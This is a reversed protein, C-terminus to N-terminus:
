CVGTNNTVRKWIDCASHYYDQALDCTPAYEIVSLNLLRADQGKVNRKIPFPIVNEKYENLYKAYIQQSLKTNELLTPLYMINKLEIHSDRIFDFVNDLSVDLSEYAEADCGLPLLFNNSACLANMVLQNFSSGNDFIIVNYQKLNPILKEKFLFERRAQMGIKLELYALEPTAPIIDLTPLSTKKIITEIPAKEFFFHYLGLTEPLNELEELSEIDQRPITYKTLSRQMPELDVLLTKINNLAFIKAFNHATGTKLVGGKPVYIVIIVQDDPLKLFGFRAGIQPVQATQWQRIGVSGRKTREATPIEGRKEANFLTQMGKARLDFRFVKQIDSSTWYLKSM